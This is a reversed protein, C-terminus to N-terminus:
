EYDDKTSYQGMYRLIDERQEMRGDRRGEEYAEELEHKYPEKIARLEENEKVLQGIVALLYVTLCLGGGVLGTKTVFKVVKKMKM